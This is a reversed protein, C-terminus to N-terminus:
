AFPISKPNQGILFIGIGNLRALIQESFCGTAKNFFEIETRQLIFVAQYFKLGEINLIKTFYPILRILRNLYIAEEFGFNLRDEVLFKEFNSLWYKELGALPNIPFDKDLDTEPFERASSLIRLFSMKPLVKSEGKPQFWITEKSLIEDNCNPSFYFDGAQYKIFKFKIKRYRELVVSNKNAKEMM